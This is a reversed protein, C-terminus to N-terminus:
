YTFKDMLGERKPAVMTKTFIDALNTPTHEKGAKSRFWSKAIVWVRYTCDASVNYIDCSLVYLENLAAIKLAIWVSDRSVVSSYNM